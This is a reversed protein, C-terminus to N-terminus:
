FQLITRHLFTVFERCLSIQKKSTGIGSKNIQVVLIKRIRIYFLMKFQMTIDLSDYDLSLGHWQFGGKKKILWFPFINRKMHSKGQKSKYTTNWCAKPLLNLGAPGSPCVNREAQISVCHFDQEYTTCRWLTMM